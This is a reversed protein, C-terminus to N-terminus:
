NSAGIVIAGSAAGIVTIAVAAAATVVTRAAVAVQAIVAIRPDTMATPLDTAAIRLDTLEVIMAGITIIRGPHDIMADIAKPENRNTTLWMWGSPDNM